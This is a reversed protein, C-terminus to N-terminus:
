GGIWFCGTRQEGEANEYDEFRSNNGIILYTTAHLDIAKVGENSATLVQNENPNDGMYIVMGDETITTSIESDSKSITLGDANFTFGTSTEVSDISNAVQQQILVEVEESSVAVSVQNSLRELEGNISGISDNLVTQVESVTATIGDTDLQLQSVIENMTSAESVVMEIQKNQKDVKAYTYKLAEGLTTPNTHEGETDTYEWETKQSFAGNYTYSDNFLFSYVESGDKKVLALKDGPEVLYNGRWSCEFQNITLDAMRTLANEVYEAREEDVFIDWFPNDWIYQTTGTLGTSAELNNGLQTASVIATLRRNTGTDLSFYQNKDITYDAPANKDILKFCLKNEHNIYYVTQTIEAVANLAERISETGEFNAGDSFYFYFEPMWPKSVELGLLQGCANVFAEVTYSEIGLESVTRNAAEHLKDYLTISVENTVEDRHVETVYLRPVARVDDFDINAYHSTTPACTGEKDIIKINAKHSIGFGFFKSNEGIREVTIEKLTGDHTYTIPTSGDISLEVKGVINRVPVSFKDINGSIM